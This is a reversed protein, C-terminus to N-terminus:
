RAHTARVTIMYSALDGVREAPGRFAVIATDEVEDFIYSLLIDFAQAAQVLNALERYVAAATATKARNLVLTTAIPVEPPYSNAAQEIAEYSQLQQEQEM